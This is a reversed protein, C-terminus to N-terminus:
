AGTVPARSSGAGALLRHRAALIGLLGSAEVLLHSTDPVSIFATWSRISAPGHTTLVGTTTDQSVIFDNSSAFFIVAFCGPPVGTMPIRFNMYFLDVPGLPAPDVTSVGAIDRVFGSPLDTLDPPSSEAYPPVFTTGLFAGKSADFAADLQFSEIAYPDVYVRIDWWGSPSRTVIYRTTVLPAGFPGLSIANATEPVALLAFALTAGSLGGVIGRTRTQNRKM